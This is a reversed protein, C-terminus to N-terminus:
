ACNRPSTTQASTTWPTIAEQWEERNHRRSADSHTRSRVHAERRSAWVEKPDPDNEPTVVPSGEAVWKHHDEDMQAVNVTHSPGPPPEKDTM